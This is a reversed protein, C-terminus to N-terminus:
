SIKTSTDVLQDEVFLHIYHNTVLSIKEISEREETTFTSLVFNADEIHTRNESNIGIRIRPFNEGIHAILSKIGNNGADRGKFRTRITGFDLSLDDHVALLNQPELKYFDLILRASEGVQNYFTKPRVILVNEGAIMTELTYAKFKSQNRWTQNESVVLDWSINHRTHAYEKGDNGLLFVIKM